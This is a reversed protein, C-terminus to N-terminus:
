YGLFDRTSVLLDDVCGGRVLNDHLFRSRDEASRLRKPREDASYRYIFPFRAGLFDLFRRPNVNRIAILAWSNFELFVVPSFREICQTAGELVDQEYGEVDIKVFEVREFGQVYLQEDLTSVSVTPANTVGKWHAENMLHSGSSRKLNIPGGVHFRMRCPQSGIALNAAVARAGLRAVNRQLAAFAEPHPEFCGIRAQPWTMAAGLAFLGFNAGVDLITSPSVGAGRLLAFLADHESCATPLGTFYQDDAYGAVRVVEGAVRIDREIM